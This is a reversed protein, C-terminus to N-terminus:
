SGSGPHRGRGCERTGPVRPGRPHRGSGRGCMGCGPGCSAAVYAYLSRRYAALSRSRRRRGGGTSLRASASVGFRRGRRHEGCTWADSGGGNRCPRSRERSGTAARRREGHRFGCGPAGSGASAGPRGGFGDPFKVTLQCTGIGSCRVVHLLERRRSGQAIDPGRVRVRGVLVSESFPHVPQIPPALNSRRCVADTAILPARTTLEGHPVTTLHVLARRCPPLQACPSCVRHTTAHTAASSTTRSVSAAPPSAPRVSPGQGWYKTHSTVLECHPPVMM